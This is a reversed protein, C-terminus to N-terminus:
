DEIGFHEKADDEGIHDLIEAMGFHKVVEAIDFHDLVDADKASFSVTNDYRGHEVSVDETSLTLDVM